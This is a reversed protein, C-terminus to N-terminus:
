QPCQHHAHPRPQHQHHPAFTPPPPSPNKPYPHPRPSPPIPFTQTPKFDALNKNAQQLDSIATEYAQTSSDIQNEASKQSSPTFGFFGVFIANSWGTNAGCMRNYVGNNFPFSLGANGGAAQWCYQVNPAASGNNQTDGNQLTSMIWVPDQQFASLMNKVGQQYGQMLSLAAAIGETTNPNNLDAQLLEYIKSNEFNGDFSYASITQETQKGDIGTVQAKREGNGLYNNLVNFFTNMDQQATQTSITSKGNSACGGLSHQGGACNSNLLAPIEKQLYSVDFLTNWINYASLGLDQLQKPVTIQNASCNNSVYGGYQGNSRLIPVFVCNYANNIYDYQKGNYTYKGDSININLQRGNVTAHGNVDANNVGFVQGDAYNVWVNHFARGVMQSIGIIQKLAQNTAANKEAQLQSLKAANEVAIEQNGAQLSEINTGVSSIVAGLENSLGNLAMKIQAQSLSGINSGNANLPTPLPLPTFTIPALGKSARSQNIKHAVDSIQTNYSELTNIANQLIQLDQSNPQGNTADKYKNISASYQNLANQAENIREQNNDGYEAVIKQLYALYQEVSKQIAAPTQNDTNLANLKALLTTAQTSTPTLNALQGAITKLTNITQTQNAKIKAIAEQYAKLKTQYAQQKVANIPPDYFYEHAISGGGMDMGFSVFPGDLYSAFPHASLGM